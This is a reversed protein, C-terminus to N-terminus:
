GHLYNDVGSVIECENNQTHTSQRMSYSNTTATIKEPVLINM